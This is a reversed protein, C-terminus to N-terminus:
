DDISVVVVGATVLVAGIMNMLTVSEKFILVSWILSLLVTVGKNSMATSLSFRKLAQQYIMAYIGLFLFELMFYILAIFPTDQIGAKKAFVSSASYIVFGGYLIVFDLIKHKKKEM